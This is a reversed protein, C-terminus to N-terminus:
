LKGGFVPFGSSAGYDRIHEATVKSAVFLQERPAGCNRVGM